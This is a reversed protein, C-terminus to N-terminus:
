GFLSSDRTKGMSFDAVFFIFSSGCNTHPLEYGGIRRGVCGTIAGGQEHGAGVVLKGIGTFNAM